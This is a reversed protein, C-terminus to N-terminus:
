ELDIPRVNWPGRVVRFGVRENRRLPNTGSRNSSLAYRAQHYWSGGRYVRQNQDGPRAALPNEVEAEDYDTLWDQCWEWVNGHMDFLGWRNCRKSGIPSAGRSKFVGYADLLEDEDGFAFKSATGARCAYEWEAETPLRYGTANPILRVRFQSDPSAPTEIVYCPTLNKERKSLWNCFMVADLWSVNQAPLRENPSIRADFGSM